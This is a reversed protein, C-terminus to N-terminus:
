EIPERVEPPLSQVEEVSNEPLSGATRDIFELWEERALDPTQIHYVIVYEVQANVRGVPLEIKLLGDEGVQASRKLTTIM